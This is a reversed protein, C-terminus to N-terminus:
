RLTEGQMVEKGSFRWLLGKYVRGKCARAVNTPHGNIANAADHLSNYEGVVEGEMSYSTVAKREKAHADRMRQITAESYKKGQNIERMKKKYEKTHKLGAFTCKGGASVNYGKQPNLSDLERILKQEEIEADEKTLGDIVIKHEFGGWGYRRIAAQLRKNHHYGADRRAELTNRTMGVYVKGNPFEYLYVKYAGMDRM